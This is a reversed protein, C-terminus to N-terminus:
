YLNQLWVRISRERGYMDRGRVSQNIATRNKYINEGLPPSDSHENDNDSIYYKYSKSFGTVNPMWFWINGSVPVSCKLVWLVPLTRPFGPYIPNRLLLQQSTKHIQLAEPIFGSVTTYITCSTSCEYMWVLFFFRHCIHQFKHLTCKHQILYHMIKVAGM